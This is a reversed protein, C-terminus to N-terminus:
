LWCVVCPRKDCKQEDVLGYVWVGMCGYMRFRAWVQNCFSVHAKLVRGIPPLMAKVGDASLVQWVPMRMCMCVYVCGYVYVCVGM